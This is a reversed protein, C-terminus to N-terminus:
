GGDGEWPPPQDASEAEERVRDRHFERRAARQEATCESVREILATRMRHRSGALDRFIVWAPPPDEDLAREVIEATERSVPTYDTRTEVLWYDIGSSGEPEDLYQRLRNM